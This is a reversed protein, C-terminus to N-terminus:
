VDEDDEEDEYTDYLEDMVDGPLFFTDYLWEKDAADSDNPTAIPTKTM